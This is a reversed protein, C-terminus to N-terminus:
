GCCQEEYWRYFYKGAQPAREKLQTIFITASDRDYGLEDYIYEHLKSVILAELEENEYRTMQWLNDDFEMGIGLEDDALCACDVCIHYSPIAQGGYAELIRRKLEETLFEETFAANVGSILSKPSTTCDCDFEDQWWGRIRYM